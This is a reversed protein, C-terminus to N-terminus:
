AADTLRAATYAALDFPTSHREIVEILSYLQPDASLREARKPMPPMEALAALVDQDQLMFKDLARARDVEPLSDLSKACTLVQKSSPVSGLMPYREIAALADPSFINRETNKQSLYSTFVRAKAARQEARKSTAKM